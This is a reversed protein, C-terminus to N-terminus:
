ADGAVVRRGCNPCFRWLEIANGDICLESTPDDSGVVDGCGSCQYNMGLLEIRCTGRGLTEAIAQEPTLYYSTVILKDGEDSDRAAHGHRAGKWFVTGLLHGYDEEREALLERLRETATM